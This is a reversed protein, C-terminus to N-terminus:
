RKDGKAALERHRDALPRYRAPDFTAATGHDGNPGARIPRLPEIDDEWVRQNLYTAPQEVYGEAWKRGATRAEVDAILRATLEDDPLLKSWAREAEPRKEHKPYVGYWRNFRAADEARLTTPKPFQKVLKPRESAPRAAAVPANSKAASSTNSRPSPTPAPSPSSRPSSRPNNARVEPSRARRMRDKAAEREARVREATPNYELYDHVRYGDELQEWLGAAVLEDACDREVDVMAAILRVAGPTLAGDTLQASCHTLAAMYMLKADKSLEIVKPNGFIHDDLKVWAM